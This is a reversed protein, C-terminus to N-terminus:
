LGGPEVELVEFGDDDLSFHMDENAKLLEPPVGGHNESQIFLVKTLQREEDLLLQVFACGHSAVAAGCCQAVDHGAFRTELREALQLFYCRSADKYWKIAQAELQLLKTFVVRLLSDPHTDGITGSLMEKVLAATSEASLM